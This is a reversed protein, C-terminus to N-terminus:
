RALSAIPLRIRVILGHPSWDHDLTGGYGLITREVLTSGFGKKDPVQPTPGDTERWTLDLMGDDVRWVIDVTGDDVSLAGYKAANTALEHLVLAISSTANEGLRVDGGHLTPARYPRLITEILDALEVRRSVSNLSFSQRVLGHADSLAHIRGILKDAMDQKTQAGRSSMRIMSDTIAFLNKIRHSMEKTLIEQEDLAKKLRSEAQVMRLASSTFSALETMAREHGANFHQGDHAIIWLTGIPAGGHALLPVLLVEPVTINADAIWGYVREPREMLIAGRHDICIGCPSHDRPTTAGEFVALKGALGLWRFVDGELVSIGAADADCIEMAQKVLHPLLAEPHNAMQDALDQLALKERLYDPAPAPRRLLEHTISVEAVSAPM